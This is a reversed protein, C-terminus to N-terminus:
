RIEALAGPVSPPLVKAKALSFQLTLTIDRQKHKLLAEIYALVDIFHSDDPTAVALTQEDGATLERWRWGLRRVFLDGYVAGLGILLDKSESASSKGYGPRLTGLRKTLLALVDEDSFGAGGLPLSARIADGAKSLMALTGASPASAAWRSPALEVVRPPPSPDSPRPEPDGARHFYGVEKFSLGVLRMELVRKRFGAGCYVLTRNTGDIVFIADHLRADDSLVARHLIMYREFPHQVPPPLFDSRQEDLRAVADVCHIMTWDEGEVDLPLLEVLSEFGDM